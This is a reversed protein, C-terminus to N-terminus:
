KMWSPKSGSPSSKSVDDKKLYKQIKNEKEGTDKRVRSGVQILLPLNHLENSDQVIPVNVAKCISGLEARAITVAKQSLNNLNLNVWLKRGQYKGDLLEFTLSLYEGTGAKNPKMESDTIAALYTGHEIPDFSRQEPAEDANFGGLNAM